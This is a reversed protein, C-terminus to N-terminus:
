VWGDSSGYGREGVALTGRSGNFGRGCEGEFPRLAETVRQQATAVFADLPLLVPATVPMTVALVRGSPAQIMIQGVDGQLGDFAVVPQGLALLRDVVPTLAAKVQAPTV